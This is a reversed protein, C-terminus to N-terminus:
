KGRWSSRIQESILVRTKGDDTKEWKLGLVPRYTRGWTYNKDFFEGVATRKDVFAFTEIDTAIPSIVRYSLINEAEKDKAGFFHSRRLIVYFNGPTSEPTALFNKLQNDNFQVFAEWDVRFGLETEEVSVPFGQQQTPTTIHYLFTQYKTGPVNGRIKMEVATTQITGPSVGGGEYYAIMTEKLNDVEHAFLMREEISQANLFANITKEADIRIAGLDEASTVKPLDIGAPNGKPDPVATAPQAAIVTEPEATAAPDLPIAPMATEPTTEEPIISIAPEAAIPEQPLPAPTRNTEEAAPTAPEEISPNIPTFESAVPPTEKPTIIAPAEPIENPQQKANIIFYGGAGAGIAALSILAIPLLASKKKVIPSKEDPYPAAGKGLIAPSQFPDRPSPAAKDLSLFPSSTDAGFPPPTRDGNSDATKAHAFPNNRQSPIFPTPVESDDGEQEPTAWPEPYTIKTEAPTEQQFAAPKSVAPATDQGELFVNIPDFSSQPPIGFPALKPNSVPENSDDIEFEAVPLSEPKKAPAIIPEGPKFSEPLDFASSGAFFPEDDGDEAGAPSVTGAPSFPSNASSPFTEATQPPLFSETKAPQPPLDDWPNKALHAKGAPEPLDNAPQPTPPFFAAVADSPAASQEPAKEVAAFFNDPLAPAPAPAAPLQTEEPAPAQMSIDFDEEIFFPSVHPSPSFGSSAWPQPNASASPPAPTQEDTQASQEDSTDLFGYTEPETQASPAIPETSSLDISPSGTPLIDEDIDTLSPFPFDSPPEEATHPEPAPASVPALAATIPALPALPELAPTPTLAKSEPEEQPTVEAIPEGAFKTVAAAATSVIGTAVAVTAIDPLHSLAPSTETAKEVTAVEEAPLESVIPPVAVAPPEESIPLEEALFAALKEEAVTPADDGTMDVSAVQEPEPEPALKSLTPTKALPAVSPSAFPDFFQTTEIEEENAQKSTIEEEPEPEAQAPQPAPAVPPANPPTATPPSNRSTESVKRALYGLTAPAAAKAAFSLLSIAKAAAFGGVVGGVILKTVTSAESSQKPTASEASPISDSPKM